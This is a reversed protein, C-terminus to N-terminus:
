PLNCKGIGYQGSHTGDIYGVSYIARRNVKDIVLTDISLKGMRTASILESNQQKIEFVGSYTYDIEHDYVSIVNGKITFTFRIFKDSWEEDGANKFSTDLNCHYITNIAFVPTSSLFFILLLIKKM